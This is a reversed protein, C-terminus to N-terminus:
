GTMESVPWTTSMRGAQKHDIQATQHHECAGPKGPDKTL